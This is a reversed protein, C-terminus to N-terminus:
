EWDNKIFYELCGRSDKAIVELGETFDALAIEGEVSKKILRELREIFYDRAPCDTDQHESEKILNEFDLEKFCKDCYEGESDQLEECNGRVCKLPEHKNELVKYIIVKELVRFLITHNDLVFKRQLANKEIEGARSNMKYTRYFEKKIKYDLVKM